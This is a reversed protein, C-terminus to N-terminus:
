RPVEDLARRVADWELRLQRVLARIQSPTPSGYELHNALAAMRLAGVTGCSGRLSHAAFVVAEVDGTRVADRLAALRRTVGEEFETVLEALFGPAEAELAVLRGFVVRDLADVPLSEPAVGSSGPVLDSHRSPPTLLAGGYLEGLTPTAISSAQTDTKM